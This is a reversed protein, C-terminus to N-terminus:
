RAKHRGRNRPPEALAKAIDKWHRLTHAIGHSPLVTACVERYMFEIERWRSRRRKWKTDGPPFQM